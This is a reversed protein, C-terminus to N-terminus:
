ESTAMCDMYSCAADNETQYAVQESDAKEPSVQQCQDNGQYYGKIISPCQKGQKYNQWPHTPGPMDKPECRAYKDCPQGSLIVSAFVATPSAGPIEIGWPTLSHSFYGCCM